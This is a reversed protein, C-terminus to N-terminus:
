EAQWGLKKWLGFLSHSSHRSVARLRTIMNETMRPAKTVPSRRYMLRRRMRAQRITMDIARRVMVM